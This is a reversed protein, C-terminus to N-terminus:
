QFLHLLIKFLFHRIDMIKEVLDKTLPLILLRHFAGSLLVLQHEILKSLCQVPPRAANKTLSDFNIEGSAFRNKIVNNM